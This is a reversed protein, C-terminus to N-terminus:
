GQKMEYQKLVDQVCQHGCGQDGQFCSEEAAELQSVGESSCPFAAVPQCQEEALKQLHRHTALEQEFRPRGLKEITLDLSRNVAAYMLYDYNGYTFQTSMYHDVEPNPLHKPIIPCKGQWDSYGGSQKASLVILDRHELDFLLKMAVLSEEMREIVVIFDYSDIINRQITRLAGNFSKELYKESKRSTNIYRVQGSTKDRVFNLINETTPETNARSVLFHYFISLVRKAPHRITTWLISPHKRFGQGKMFAFAHSWNSTCPPNVHVNTSINTSINTSNHFKREAVNQSIQMTIGASTSSAAKPNKVYIMGVVGGNKDSDRVSKARKLIKTQPICWEAYPQQQQDNNSSNRPQKDKWPTFPKALSDVYPIWWDSVNTTHSTTSTSTSTRTIVLRKRKNPEERLGLIMSHVDSVSTTNSTTRTIVFPANPDEFELMMSNDVPVSFAGMLQEKLLTIIGIVMLVVLLARRNRHLKREKKTSSSTHSTNARADHHHHHHHHHQNQPLSPTPIMMM